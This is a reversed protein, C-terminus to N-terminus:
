GHRKAYGARLRDLDLRAQDLTGVSIRTIGEISDFHQDVSLIHTLGHNQMVAAHLADRAVIGKPAYKGFVEIAQRIDTATVPYVTQVLDLLNTAMSIGTEWQRIASYRHLIEQVIEVDIAATLRGEAIEEMVWVCAAKCPHDAGGAYMPVNVDLFVVPSNM